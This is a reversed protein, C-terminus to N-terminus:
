LLPEFLSRILHTCDKCISNRWGPLMFLTWHLFSQGHLASPQKVWVTCSKAKPLLAAPMGCGQATPWSARLPVGTFASWCNGHSSPTNCSGSSFRDRNSTMSHPTSTFDSCTFRKRFIVLSEATKADTQLENWWQPALVSLFRSKVSRGKNARLLPPVLQGASTTSRLAQAPAHPRILTQLYIPATGNVPKFALGMTKFGIHAADPFWHYDHLLPTVHSFKPLNFIFCAASLIRHINPPCIQLIPGCCHYKPQLITQWRCNHGPKHLSQCKGHWPM